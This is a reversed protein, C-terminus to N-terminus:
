DVPEAQAILSKIETLLSSVEQPHDSGDSTRILTERDGVKFIITYTFQDCCSDEYIIAEQTSSSNIEELKALLAIVEEPPTQFEQEFPNVIRGDPYITWEQTIGAIGGERRYTIEIDTAVGRIPQADPACAVLPFLGAFVFLFFLNLQIQKFM